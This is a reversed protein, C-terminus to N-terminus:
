RYISGNIKMPGTGETARSLAYAITFQIGDGNAVKGVTAAFIIADVFVLVYVPNMIKKSIFMTKLTSLVNTFATILFLGILALIINRTM